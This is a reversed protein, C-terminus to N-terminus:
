IPRRYIFKLLEKDDEKKTGDAVFSNKLL